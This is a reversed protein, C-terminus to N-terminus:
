AAGRLATTGYLNGGSNGDSGKGQLRAASDREMGDPRVIRNPEIASRECCIELIRDRCVGQPRRQAPGVSYPKARSGRSLSRHRIAAAAPNARDPSSMGTATQCGPVNRSCRNTGLPPEGHEEREGLVGAPIGVPHGDFEPNLNALIPAN